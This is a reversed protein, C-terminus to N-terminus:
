EHLAPLKYKQICYAIFSRLDTKSIGGIPNLDASSCDYKTMYGRLSFCVRQCSVGQLYCQLVSCLNCAFREDVNASGLVLCGGTRGRSWYSLQAFLYALVMRIRAQKHHFLSLYFFCCAFTTSFMMALTVSRTVLLLHYRSTRFLWTKGTHAVMFKLSQRCVLSLGSYPSSPRWQLISTWSYIIALFNCTKM